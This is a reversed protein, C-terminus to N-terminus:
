PRRVPRGDSDDPRNETEWKQLIRFVGSVNEIVERVAEPSGSDGKKRLWLAIKKRLLNEGSEEEEM